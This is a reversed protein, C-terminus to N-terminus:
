ASYWTPDILGAKEFAEKREFCTGCKGCHSDKGEYCSWSLQFPANYKHGLKAIDWKMMFSFPAYIEVKGDSGLSLSKSMSEIFQPRCDPYIVHDGAHNAISVVPYELSEAIGAAISLMISNRAPVVTRAMSADAYHGHPIEGGSQLLDSKFLSNIFDINVRIPEPLKLHNCVDLLASYEVANHKGGYYFSVPRVVWGNESLFSLLATSDMGGSALVVAKKDTPYIEINEPQRFM